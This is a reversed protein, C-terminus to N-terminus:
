RLCGLTPPFKDAPRKPGAVSSLITAADKKKPAGVEKGEKQTCLSATLFVILAEVIPFLLPSDLRRGLWRRGDCYFFSMAKGKCRLKRRKNGTNGKQQRKEVRKSATTSTMSLLCRRTNEVNCSFQKVSNRWKGLLPAGMCTYDFPTRLIFCSRSPSCSSEPKEMPCKEKKKLALMMKLPQWQIPQLRWRHHHSINHRMEECEGSSNSWQRKKALIVNFNTPMIKSAEASGTTINPDTEKSRFPSNWDLLILSTSTNTNPALM